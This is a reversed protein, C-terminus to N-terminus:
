RDSWLLFEANDTCTMSKIVNEFNFGEDKSVKDYVQEFGQAGQPIMCRSDNSILTLWVDPLWPGEATNILLITHVDKWNVSESSSWDPYYVSVTEGNITVTYKDEPQPRKYNFLRQFIKM